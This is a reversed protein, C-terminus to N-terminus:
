RRAASTASAQSGGGSGCTRRRLVGPAMNAMGAGIIVAGNMPGIAAVHLAAVAIALPDPLLPPADNRYTTLSTLIWPLLAVLGGVVLYTAGVAASRSRWGLLGLLLVAGAPSVSALSWALTAAGPDFTPGDRACAM